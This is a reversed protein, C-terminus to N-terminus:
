FNFELKSIMNVGPDNYFDDINLHNRYEKDFLNEINVSFVMEPLKEYKFSVGSRINFLVYGPTEKEGPAPHSQTAYFVGSLELWYDLDNGLDHRWRVGALGNLPPIRNLRESSNKDRGLVYAVNGFLTLRDLVDFELFGDFGYLEASSVNVYERTEMGAFTNGRNVLDIYNNVRNYFSNLSGRIGPGKIKVGVDVNYSYEADLEPDGLIIYSGGRTSYREFIDPARFGSAFTSTLNILESLKYLLGVNFTVASDRQNEFKNVETVKKVIETGSSDYTITTFPSDDADAEFFDYRIGFLASFGKGLVMDDQIFLGLHERNSDPVPKFELIKTTIDKVEKNKVQTESGDSDERILEIGAVLCHSEGLSKQLQWSSGIASTNISNDKLTYVPKSSSHIRGEYLREQDVLWVKAILDDIWKFEKGHYALKYTYTDFMTFHSYDADMKQPVGQDGIKNSGFSFTVDDDPNLYYRGKFDVNWAKYQSNAVDNGAGDRYDESNRGSLSLRMDVGKGGGSIQCQGAMGQDMSSYAGSTSGNFTWFDNLAYDPAATIVNIVGGIADSGYLVSAPGKLVEIKELNSADVFPVFPARGAWLNSERDGDILVLVRNAGLGRIIPTVEWLGARSLSVGALESLPEAATAPNLVELRESTVIEVPVPVDSWSEEIRTATVVLDNLTIVESFSIATHLFLLSLCTFFQFFHIKKHHIM